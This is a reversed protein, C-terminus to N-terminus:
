DLNVFLEDTLFEVTKKVSQVHSKSLKGSKHHAMIRRDTKHKRLNEITTQTARGHEELLDVLLTYAFGGNEENEITDIGGVDNLHVIISWEIAHIYSALASHHLGYKMAEDGEDCFQIVKKGYKLSFLPERAEEPLTPRLANAPTHPETLIQWGFEAQITRFFEKGSRIANKKNYDERHQIQQHHRVITPIITMETRLDIMDGKVLPLFRFHVEYPTDDRTRKLQELRDMPEPQSVTPSLWETFSDWASKDKKRSKLIYKITRRNFAEKAPNIPIFGEEDMIESLIRHIKKLSFEDKSHEAALEGKVILEDSNLSQSGM